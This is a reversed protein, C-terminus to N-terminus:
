HQNHTHKPTNESLIHIRPARKLRGGQHGGQRQHDDEATADGQRGDARRRQEMTAARRFWADRFDHGWFCVGRCSDLVRLAM